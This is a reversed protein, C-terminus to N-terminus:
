SVLLVLPMTIISLITSLCVMGAAAQSDGGQRQVYVALNTRVTCRRCHDARGADGWSSRSVGQAAASDAPPHAAASGRQGALGGQLSIDEQPFHEGAACRLDGHGGARQLSGRLRVANTFIGPLTIPLFYLLLGVAFAIVLPNKLVGLPKAAQADGLIAQGYTWQLINLLAVFGAIYFVAGEGVVATILPIGMFGANSFASGFNSAPNKWFLLASVGVSVGLALASLLLSWLLNQTAQPHGGPPFISRHRM